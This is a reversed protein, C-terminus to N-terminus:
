SFVRWQELLLRAVVLAASLVPPMCIDFSPVSSCIYFLPQKAKSRAKFFIVGLSMSRKLFMAFGDFDSIQRQRLRRFRRTSTVTSWYGYPISCALDLLDLSGMRVKFESILTQFLEFTSKAQQRSAWFTRLFGPFITYFIFCKFPYIECFRSVSLNM